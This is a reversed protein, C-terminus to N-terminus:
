GAISEAGVFDNRRDGSSAHSFHPFAAIRPQPARDGDFYGLFLEVLAKFAFGTSDRRQVMGIDALKIVQTSQGFAAPVQHHLIDFARGDARDVRRASQQIQRDL